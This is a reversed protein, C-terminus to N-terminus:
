FLRKQRTCKGSFQYTVRECTVGDVDCDVKFLDIEGSYRNLYGALRTEKNAFVYSAADSQAIEYNGNVAPRGALTVEDGSISVLIGSTTPVAPLFMKSPLEGFAEHGDCVLSVPEAAANPTTVYILPVACLISLLRTLM